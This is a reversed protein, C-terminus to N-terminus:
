GDCDLVQGGGKGGLLGRSDGLTKRRGSSSSRAENSGALGASYSSESRRRVMPSM